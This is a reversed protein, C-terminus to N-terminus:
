KKWTPEMTYRFIEKTLHQLVLHCFHVTIDKKVCCKALKSHNLVCSKIIQKEGCCCATAASSTMTIQSKSAHNKLEAEDGVKKEWQAARKRKLMRNAKIMSIFIRHGIHSQSQM